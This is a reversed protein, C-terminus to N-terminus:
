ASSVADSARRLLFPFNDGGHSFPPGFAALATGSALIRFGAAEFDRAWEDAPLTLYHNLPLAHNARARFRGQTPVTVFVGIADMRSIEAMLTPQFDLPVHEILDLAVVFDFPGSFPIACANGQVCWTPMKDDGIDLGFSEFGLARLRSVLVGRGCGLELLTGPWPRRPRLGFAAIAALIGGASREWREENDWHGARGYGGFHAKRGDNYARGYLQRRLRGFVGWPRGDGPVAPFGDQAERVDPRPLPEDSRPMQPRDDSM